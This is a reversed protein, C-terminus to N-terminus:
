AFQCVCQWLVLPIRSADVAVQYFVYAPDGHLTQGEPTLWYPDFTGLDTVVTGGVAFSGQEEIVLPLPKATEEAMVNGAAIMGATALLLAGSLTRHKLSM